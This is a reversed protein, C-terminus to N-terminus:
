STKAAKLLELVAMCCNRSALELDWKATDRDEVINSVGRVEILPIKYFACIHAVAAGEMNECIAGWKKQLEAARKRTGTCTSLTVFKGSKIKPADPGGRFASGASEVAAEALRRDLAFENYYPKRGKRLVPIGMYETGHFGDAELVGEDGYVEAEAVMIDGAALGSCPYAGGAGFNIVLEPSYDRILVTSAHAANTKGMGSISYVIEVGEIRGRYFSLHSGPYPLVRALRKVFFTGESPVASILGVCTNKRLRRHKM